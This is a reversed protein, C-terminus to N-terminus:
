QKSSRKWESNVLQNPNWQISDFRIEDLEIRLANVKPMYTSQHQFSTFWYVLYAIAEPMQKVFMKKTNRTQIDRQEHKHMGNTLYIRVSDMSVFCNKPILKLQSLDVCGNKQHQKNQGCKFNWFGIFSFWFLIVLFFVFYFHILYSSHTKARKIMNTWSISNM